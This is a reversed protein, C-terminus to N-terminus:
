SKPLKEDLKTADFKPGCRWASVDPSDIVIVGAADLTKRINDATEFDKDDRATRRATLLADIKDSVEPDPGSHETYEIEDPTTM